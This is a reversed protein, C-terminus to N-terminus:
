KEEDQREGKLQKLRGGELLETNEPSYAIYPLHIRVTTGEDLCSDIELGYPEGFRLRIRNHVNILGVGSGHKRVRNNETLLADVMEDPMGLGNDRVEVYVDDGKRYGVVTIEGDGDMSEMGYYIANELLPQIVLKVTCCSLIADEVQFEVTFKNKYRIKQINMYNRAHKLEDEMSIITKGRSLSIRFLSALQTVMFVADEYREGEIVLFEPIMETGFARLGTQTDSVRVGSILHFVSRTLENGIRSRPPMKHGVSRVGM